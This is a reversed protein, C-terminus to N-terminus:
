PNQMDFCTGIPWQKRIILWNEEKSVDAGAHGPVVQYMKVFVSYRACVRMKCIKKFKNIIQRYTYTYMYIYM